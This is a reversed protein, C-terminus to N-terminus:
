EFYTDGWNNHFVGYKGKNNWPNMATCVITREDMDIEYFYEIDGHLNEEEGEVVDAADQEVIAQGMDMPNDYKCNEEKSLFDLLEQGAGEPYGDNHRYLQCLKEEGNITKKIIINTRTSM